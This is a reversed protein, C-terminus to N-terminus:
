FPAVQLRTVPSHLHASPQVPSLYTVHALIHIITYSVCAHSPVVFETLFELCYLALFNYQSLQAEIFNNFFTLIILYVTM